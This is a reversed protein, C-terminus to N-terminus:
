ACADCDHKSARYRLMGDADVLPPPTRYVKRRQLLHTGAPCIYANAGLDYTFASRCFTGDRRGCKDFVPHAARSARAASSGAWCRPQMSISQFV